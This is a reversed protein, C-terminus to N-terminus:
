ASLRRRVQGLSEVLDHFRRADFLADDAFRVPDERRRRRLGSLQDAQVSRLRVADPDHRRPHIVRQERRAIACRRLPAQMQRPKPEREVDAAELGMLTRVHRDAGHRLGHRAIGLGGPM